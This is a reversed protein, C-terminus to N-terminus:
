TRSVLGRSPRAPTNRKRKWTSELYMGREVQTQIGLREDCCGPNSDTWINPHVVKHHEGNLSVEISWMVSGLGELPDPNMPDHKNRIGEAYFALHFVLM